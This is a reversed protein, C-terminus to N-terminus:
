AGGPPEGLPGLVRQAASLAGERGQVHVWTDVVSTILKPEQFILCLHLSHLPTFHAPSFKVGTYKCAEFPALPGRFWWMVCAM